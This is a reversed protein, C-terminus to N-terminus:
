TRTGFATLRAIFWVVGALAITMTCARMGVRGWLEKKRALLVLPVLAALVAMQGLEVGLNFAFLAAPVDPAPLKIQRLAGAFGFGHVLGFPFTIKWRGTADRVFWNEIGV